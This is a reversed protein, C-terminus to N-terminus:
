HHKGGEPCTRGDGPKQLCSELCLSEGAESFRHGWGVAGERAWLLDHRHASAANWDFGEQGEATSFWHLCEWSNRCLKPIGLGKLLTQTAWNRWAAKHVCQKSPEQVPDGQSCLWQHILMASGKGWQTKLLVNWVQLLVVQPCALCCPIDTNNM